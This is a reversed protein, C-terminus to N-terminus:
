ASSIFKIRLEKIRDQMSAYYRLRVLLKKVAEYDHKAFAADVGAVLDEMASKIRQEFGDITGDHKEVRELEENLELVTGLFESDLQVKKTKMADDAHFDVGNRRLLYAGRSLPNLLTTYATNIYHSLESSHEKERTSKQAFKDPHLLKQLEKHRRSLQSTDVRFSLPIGFIDFFNINSRDLPQISGCSGCLHTTATTNANCKWCAALCTVTTFFPRRCTNRLALPLARLSGYLRM